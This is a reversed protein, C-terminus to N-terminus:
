LTQKIISFSLPSFLLPNTMAGFSLFTDAHFEVMPVTPIEVTNLRTRPAHNDESQNFSDKSSFSITKAQLERRAGVNVQQNESVSSAQPLLLGL